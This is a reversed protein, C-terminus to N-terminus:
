SKKYMLGNIVGKIIATIKKIKNRESLTIKVIPKLVWQLVLGIGYEKPYERHLLINNRAIYYLRFPSYNNTYFGFVSKISNGFQQNLLISTAMVSSYGNRKARFCFEYDVCDIKYDERFLSIEKFISLNVIQGSTILRPLETLIDSNKKEINNPNPGFIFYNNCYTNIIEIYKKFHGDAFCSDQDMTLIHSFGNTTGYNVAQNLAYAICMNDDTGMYIIKNDYKILRIKYKERQDIPTNEWIILTDVDSIFQKINNITQEVEPYYTVVIGLLKIKNNM